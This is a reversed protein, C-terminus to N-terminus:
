PLMCTKVFRQQSFKRPDLISNKTLVVSLSPSLDVEYYCIGCHDDKRM